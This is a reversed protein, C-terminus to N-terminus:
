INNGSSDVLRPLRVNIVKDIALAADGLLLYTQGDSSEFGTVVGTVQQNKVSIPNGNADYAYLSVTYAGDAVSNGSDDLGDWVIEQRIGATKSGLDLNAVVSGSPSTIRMYVYANSDLEFSVSNTYGQLVPMTNGTVTVERGLYSLAQTKAYAEEMRSIGSLSDAIVTLKELSSFQALQATFDANDMPNLPDQNTMQALFLKMFADQGLTSSDTDASVTTTPETYLVHTNTVGDVAM